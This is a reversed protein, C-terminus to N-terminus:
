IECLAVFRMRKTKNKPVLHRSRESKRLQAHRYVISQQECARSRECFLLVDDERALRSRALMAHLSERAQVSAFLQFSQVEHRRAVVVEVEAIGCRSTTVDDDHFVFLRLKSGLSPWGDAVLVGDGRRTSRGTRDIRSAELRKACKQANAACPRSARLRPSSGTIASSM